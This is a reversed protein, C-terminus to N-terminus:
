KESSLLCLKAEMKDSSLFGHERDRIIVHEESMEIRFYFALLKHSSM